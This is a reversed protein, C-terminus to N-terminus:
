QAAPSLTRESAQLEVSLLDGPQLPTDLAVVSSHGPVNNKFLVFRATPSRPELTSPVATGLYGMRSSLGQLKTTVVLVRVASEHLDRLLDIRRQDDLKQLRRKLEDREREIRAAEASTELARTSSLLMARRADYVRTIPISGRDFLGKVRELEELDDASGQQEKQFQSVLINFRKDAQAISTSLSAQEKNLDLQRLRLYETETKLLAAFTTSATDGPLQSVNLEAAGNMEAELRAVRLKEKILELWLAEYESKLEIAEAEPDRSRPRSIGYGGAVAVAHRVTMGARFPLEGPRQVDGSVVVPRYEVLGVSVDEPRITVAVERGDAARSYYFKSALGVAVESRLERLTLGAAKCLGLLAFAVEGDLNVLARQKLDPVGAVVLEVVDGTGLRYSESTAQVPLHASFLTAAFILLGGRFRRRM